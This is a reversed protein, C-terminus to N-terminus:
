LTLVKNDRQSQPSSCEYICIFFYQLYLNGQYWDIKYSTHVFQKIIVHASEIWGVSMIWPSYWDIQVKQEM